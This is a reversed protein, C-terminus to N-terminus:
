IQKRSFLLTALGLPALVWALQAALLVAPSLRAQDSVGAMGSFLRVGDFGTLNFVRYADTPNLLLLADLVGPTILKGQDVVLAGLLGMDYLLVFVLWVAVALGAATGRERVLTSLLYGIAVFAAGLLISSGILAGFADWGSTDAFGDRLGLAFGAAGYGLATAFALIAVHGLFKGLVVQWRAVPYALLLLLTGREHEGVVADFSLLLAILPVLFITLSSLSVITVELAGVGVTGTPTSGVFALTLALAALLATTALVWRNRLGDRVERLALTIVTGM